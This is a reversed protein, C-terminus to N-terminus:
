SKITYSELMSVCIGVAPSKTQLPTPWPLVRTEGRCMASIAALTAFSPTIGDGLNIASTMVGEPEVTKRVCSGGYPRTIDELVAAVM